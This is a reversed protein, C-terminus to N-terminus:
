SRRRRRAVLSTMGLGGLLLAWTEPEPIASPDAAYDHGSLTFMGAPGTWAVDDLRATHFLDISRGNRANARLQAVVVYSVGASFDFDLDLKSDFSPRSEANGSRDRLRAVLTPGLFGDDDQSLHDVDWVDLDYFWDGSPTALTHDYTSPFLVNGTAASAKGDIAVTASFHGDASFRWVDRWVSGAEAFTQIAVNSNITATIIDTGQAGVSTAADVRNIGFDSQSVAVASSLFPNNSTCNVCLGGVAARQVATSYGTQSDTFVNLGASFGSPTPYSATPDFRYSSHGFSTSALAATCTTFSTCDGLGGAGGFAARVAQPAFLVLAAALAVAHPKLNFRNM